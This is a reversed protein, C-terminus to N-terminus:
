LNLKLNITKTLDSIWRHRCYCKELASNLWEAANKNLRTKLVQFDEEDKPRISKSKYLLQIEPKIIKVGDKEWFLFDHEVKINKDRKYIWFGDEVDYLMIQLCWASINESLIWIDQIPFKYFTNKDFLSLNGNQSVFIRSKEIRDFIKKQDERKILIDIDAHNRYNKGVFIELAFGGALIWELGDFTKKIKEITWPKWYNHDPLKM